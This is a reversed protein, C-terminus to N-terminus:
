SRRAGRARYRGGIQPGTHVLDGATALRGIEARTTPTPTGPRIEELAAIIEASTLAEGSCAQLVADRATITARRRSMAGLVSEHTGSRPKVRPSAAESPDIPVSMLEETTLEALREPHGRRALEVAVMAKLSPAPPPTSPQKKMLSM